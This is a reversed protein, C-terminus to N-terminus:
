PASKAPGTRGAAMQSDLKLRLQGHRYQEADLTSQLREVKAELALKEDTLQQLRRAHVGAPELEFKEREAQVAEAGMVLSRRKEKLEALEREVRQKLERAEALIREALEQAEAIM